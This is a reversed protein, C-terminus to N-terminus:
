SVIEKEIICGEDRISYICKTAMTPEAKRTKYNYEFFGKNPTGNYKGNVKIIAYEKLFDQTDFLFNLKNGLPVDPSMKIKKCVDQWIKELNEYVQFDTLDLLKELDVNVAVITYSIDPNRRCQKKNWWKANGMNDWFYMGKGLWNDDKLNESLILYEEGSIFKRCREKKNSHYLIAKAEM